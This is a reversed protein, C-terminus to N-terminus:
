AAALAVRLGDGQGLGDLDDVRSRDHLDVTGGRHLLAGGIREVQTGDVRAAIGNGAPGDVPAVAVGRREAAVGRRRGVDVVLAGGGVGDGGAGGVLIAGEGAVRERDVHGVGVGHEEQAAVGRYGRAVDIGEVEAAIVRA